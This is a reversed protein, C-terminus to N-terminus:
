LLPVSRITPITARGIDLQAFGGSRTRLELRRLLGTGDVWYRFRAQAPKGNPDIVFVGVPTGDITDDRLRHGAKRLRAVDDRTTASATLAENVILDLDLGGHEDGRQDWRAFLWSGDTPVPIPPGSGKKGGTPAARVAMGDRNARILITDEANRVQLYAVTSRWDVWGTGTLTGTTSDPVTLTIKGGGSARDRQRMKALRTAEAATVAKPAVPLGGLADIATLPAPTNHRVEVTVPLDQGVLADFRYLRADRDLWYRVAGGM